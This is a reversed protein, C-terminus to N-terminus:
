DMDAASFGAVGASDDVGDRLRDGVLRRQLDDALAALAAEPRGTCAACCSSREPRAPM